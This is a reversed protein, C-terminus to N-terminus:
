LSSGCGVVNAEDLVLVPWNQALERGFHLAFAPELGLHNVAPVGGRTVPIVHNNVLGSVGVACRGVRSLQQADRKGSLAFAAQERNRVEKRRAGATAHIHDAKRDHCDAADGALDRLAKKLSAIECTIQVQVTKGDLSGLREGFVHM